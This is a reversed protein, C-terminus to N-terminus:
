FGLPQCEAFRKRSLSSIQGPKRGCVKGRHFQKRVNCKLCGLQLRVQELPCSEALSLTQWGFLCGSAYHGSQRSNEHIAAAGFESAVWLGLTGAPHPLIGRGIQGGTGGVGTPRKHTGRQDRAEGQARM